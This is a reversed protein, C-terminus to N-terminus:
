GRANESRHWQCDTPNQPDYEEHVDGCVQERLMAAARRSGAEFGAAFEATWDSPVGAFAQWDEIQSAWAPEYRPM